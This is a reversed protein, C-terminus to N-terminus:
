LSAILLLEIGQFLYNATQVLLSLLSLEVTILPYGALTLRRPTRRSPIRLKDRALRTVKQQDDFELSFNDTTMEALQLYIILFSLVASINPYLSVLFYYSDMTTQLCIPTYLIFYRSSIRDSNLMSWLVFSVTLRLHEDICTKTKRGM